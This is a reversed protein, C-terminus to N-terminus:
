ETLFLVALGGDMRGGHEAMQGDDLLQDSRAAVARLAITVTQRWQLRGALLVVIRHDFIQRLANAIRAAHRGSGSRNRRPSSLSLSLFLLVVYSIVTYM